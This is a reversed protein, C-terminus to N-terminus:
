PKQLPRCFTQKGTEAQKFFSSKFLYPRGKVCTYTSGTQYGGCPSPSATGPLTREDRYSRGVKGAENCFHKSAAQTHQLLPVRFLLHYLHQVSSDNPSARSDRRRMRGRRRIRWMKGGVPEAATKKKKYHEHFYWHPPLTHPAGTDGPVPLPHSSSENSPQSTRFLRWTHNNYQSSGKVATYGIM